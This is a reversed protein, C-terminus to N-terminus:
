TNIAPLPVGAKELYYLDDREKKSAIFRIALKWDQSAYVIKVRTINIVVWQGDLKALEKALTARASAVQQRDREVDRKIMDVRRLRDAFRFSM